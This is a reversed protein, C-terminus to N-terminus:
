RFQIICNVLTTHTVGQHTVFMSQKWM